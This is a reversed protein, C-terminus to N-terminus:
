VLPESSILELIGSECIALISLVAEAELAIRIQSKDDLPRQLCCNDLYVKM